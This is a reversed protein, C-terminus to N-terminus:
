NDKQEHQREKIVNEIGEYVHRCIDTRHAFFTDAIACKEPELVFGNQAYSEILQLAAEESDVVNYFEKAQHRAFDIEARDLSNLTVDEADPIWYITPKHLFAFDFSVSSYDTLCADAHRIWYSVKDSPVTEIDDFLKTDPLCNVIQHHLSVVVRVRHRELRQLNDNGLFKHVRQVYASTAVKEIDKDFTNRWTFMVFLTFDMRELSREDKLLDYRPLGGIFYRPPVAVDPHIVARDELFRQERISAVNISNNSAFCQSLLRTSKWFTLGHQLFVRELNPLSVIWRWLIPHLAVNEQVLAKTRILLDSHRDLLELDSCADGKLAVVDKARKEHVLHKYFYHERWILYRSPIGHAQLWMFFTWSDIPENTKSNLQGTVLYLDQKASKRLEAIQRLRAALSANAWKPIGSRDSSSLEDSVERSLIKQLRWYSNKGLSEATQSDVLLAKRCDVQLLRAVSANKEAYFLADSFCRRLLAVFAHRPLKWSFDKILDAYATILAKQANVADASNVGATLCSVASSPNGRRYHYCVKPNVYVRDALALIQYLLLGDEGIQLTSFRLNNSVLLGRRFVGIWMGANFNWNSLERPAFVRRRPIEPHNSLYYWHDIRKRTKYNFCVFDHLCADLHHKKCLAVSEEAARLDLYDDADVFAIYKGKADDMGRNRAVGVGANAQRIVRIRGDRKAAADLIEASRDISGDDVFIMEIENLTQRRLSDICVALYDAANYVPVVYSLLPNKVPRVSEKTPPLIDANVLPFAADSPPYNAITSLKERRWAFDPGCTFENYCVFHSDHLFRSIICLVEESGYRSPIGALKRYVLGILDQRDIRKLFEMLLPIDKILLDPLKGDAKFERSQQAMIGQETLMYNYLPQPVFRIRTAYAVVQFFFVEDEGEVGIPFRIKNRRLFDNRFLYAWCTSNLRAILENTLDAGGAGPVTFYRVMAQVENEPADYEYKVNAGCMAFEAKEDSGLAHSLEAYMSPEVFDDGDVFGVYKGHAVALGSNRAAGRGGNKQHVVRINGFRRAYDDAITGSEDPSGDDVVIIEISDLIQAVLSDLCRPLCKAVKYAPVIVSVLPNLIESSITQREANLSQSCNEGMVPIAQELAKLRTRFWKREVPDRSWARTCLRKVGWDFLINLFDVLMDSSEQKQAFELMLPLAEMLNRDREAATHREWASDRGKEVLIRGIAFFRQAKIQAQRLFINASGTAWECFRLENALAWERDFIFSAIAAGCAIPQRSDVWGSVNWPINDPFDISKGILRKVKAGVVHARAEEATMALLELAYPSTLRDSATMFCVYKGQAFALAMNRTDALNLGNAKVALFRGDQRSQEELTTSIASNEGSDMLLIQLSPLSQKRLDSICAIIEEERDICTVVVTLLEM